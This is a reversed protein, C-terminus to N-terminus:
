RRLVATSTVWRPHCKASLDPEPDVQTMAPELRVAPVPPFNVNGGGIQVRLFRSLICIDGRRDDPKTM